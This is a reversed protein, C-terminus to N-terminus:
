VHVVDRLRPLDLSVLCRKEIGNRSGGMHAAGSPLLTITTARFAIQRIRSIRKISDVM